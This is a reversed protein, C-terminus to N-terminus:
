IEVLNNKILFQFMELLVSGRNGLGIIGVKVKKIPPASFGFMSGDVDKKTKNIVEELSDINLSMNSLPSGLFLSSGIISKLFHKRKM